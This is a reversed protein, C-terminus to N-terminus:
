ASQLRRVFPSLVVAVLGLVGGVVFAWSVGAATASAAAMGAGAALGMGLTMAAVLLAIGAAGSLQQLTNMIASGHPYLRPPLSALAVTMLPTMVMSMGLCFLVHYIVMLLSSTATTMTAMLLQGTAMLVAGPIVVPRPGVRDYIAGVLPSALGQILGGPLLLLGSALVSLGLSVQMFIPLVLVTGLMMAMAASVIIVSLRFTSATFPRLNLLARGVKELRIQRHVFVAAFVAGAGVAILPQWAGDAVMGMTSLGYIIGGFALAALLVSAIDLVGPVTERKLRIAVAGAVMVVVALLLMAAFIWRWGWSNTIIGSITPGLAPAVSIVVANLGMVTGRSKIPVFTLTTTMLLPLVLATGGAQIVRGILLLSFVPAVASVVTGVLFLGMAWLFISRIQFRQIIFGTTPIIVAMTLMFGTTLWQATSAAVEFEEMIPPLSVSLVTENLIMVFAAVVLTALAPTITRGSPAVPDSTSPPDASLHVSEVVETTPSAM